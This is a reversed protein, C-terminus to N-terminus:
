RFSRLIEDHEKKHAQMEQQFAQSNERMTKITASIEATAALMQDILMEAEAEEEATFVPESPPVNKGVTIFEGKRPGSIIVAEAFDSLNDTEKFEAELVAM